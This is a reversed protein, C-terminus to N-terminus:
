VLGWEPPPFFLLRQLAEAVTATRYNEVERPWQNLHKVDDRRSLLRTKGSKLKSSLIAGADPHSFLPLLHRGRSSTLQPLFGAADSRRPGEALSPPSCRPDPQTGCGKLTTSARRRPASGSSFSHNLDPPTPPTSAAARFHDLRDRVSPHDRTTRKAAM